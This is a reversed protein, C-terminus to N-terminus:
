TDINVGGEIALLSKLESTLFAARLASRLCPNDIAHGLAKNLYVLGAAELRRQTSAMKQTATGSVLSAICEATDSLVLGIQDVNGAAAVLPKAVSQKLQAMAKKFGSEVDWRDFDVNHISLGGHNRQFVSVPRIILQAEDLTAEVLIALIKRGLRWLRLASEEDDASIELVLLEGVEDNLEWRYCQHLDDFGFRGFSAPSILAPIPTSRRRIGTGMRSALDKRFAQWNKHIAPCDMMEGFTVPANIKEGGNQEKTSISGDNAIRPDALRIRRGMLGSLTGVGWVPTQYAGTVDFASDAGASRGQLVTLWRNKVPELVYASLGRAGTKSRWRSVGLPWVEIEESKKYDRRISGGLVPDPLHTRLVELLAYSRSADLVFSEPEFEVHRENALQAQNGLARLEASLRPLAECRSSIALDLLLDRALVSRGPVVSSVAQEIIKQAQDIFDASLTRGASLESSQDTVSVGERHRVAIAAVTTLLRKRTKPGKYAAGKLGGDAIFTVAANLEAMRVTISTGASDFTLGLDEAALGIAKTWDAGAFKSIQAEPLSCIQILAGPSDPHDESDSSGGGQERLMLFSLLIHRCLGHAKCTCTSAAPGKADVRVTIDDITIVAADSTQSQLRGTGADLDRKARRLLGKSALAVLASDDHRRIMVKLSM